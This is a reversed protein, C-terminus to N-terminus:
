GSFTARAPSATPLVGRTVSSPNAVVHAGEGERFGCPSWNGGEGHGMVGPAGRGARGQRGQDGRTIVICCYCCVIVDAVRVGEGPAYERREGQSAAGGEAGGAEGLVRGAQTQSVVSRGAGGEVVIVVVFYYCHFGPAVRGTGGWRSEGRGEEAGGAEGLARGAKTQSVVSQRAEGGGRRKVCGEGVEGCGVWTRGGDREVETLANNVTEWAGGEVDSGGEVRPRHVGAM